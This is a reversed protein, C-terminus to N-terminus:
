VTEPEKVETANKIKPDLFGPIGGGTNPQPPTRPASQSAPADPEQGRSSSGATGKQLNAIADQQKKQRNRAAKEAFSLTAIDEEPNFPKTIDVDVSGSSNKRQIAPTNYDDWNTDEIKPSSTNTSTPNLRADREQIIDVADKLAGDKPIIAESTVTPVTANEKKRSYLSGGTSTTEKTILAKVDEDLSAYFNQRKEETMEMLQKVVKDAESEIRRLDDKKEKSLTDLTRMLTKTEPKKIDPDSKKLEDLKTRLTQVYAEKEQKNKKKYAELNNASETNVVEDDVKEREEKTLFRAGGYQTFYKNKQEVANEDVEGKRKVLEGNKYIDREYTTKIRDGVTRIKKLKEESVQAYGGKLANGQGMGGMGLLGKSFGAKQMGGAVVSSNRLDFSSNALSTTLDYMRRGMFSNQKSNVWERDQLKAAARSGIARRSLLGVGGTAVGLGFGGVKGMANTAYDGVSGSIKKTVTIMIHLMILMMLINFFTAVTGVNGTGRLGENLPGSSFVELFKLTIALMIMFVPGVALQAFFIKRLEQAKDGLVPIVSDILLLPSAITIFILAATRFIIIASVMFFIYASYLVYVVTLLAGPVSDVSGFLNVTSDKKDVASAILGQLGLRNVIIAGANSQSFIDRNNLVQNGLASTYVKLSIINSVDIATRAIPYSFNVFLGFIVVWPIYKEFKDERGLIYLFGLYLGVFVIALSVIQRVIIWIPYLTDPAWKSFELIGVLVAQNFMNATLWLLFGAINVFINKIIWTVGETVCATIRATPFFSCTEDAAKKVIADVQQQANTVAAPDPALNGSDRGKGIELAIIRATELQGYFVIYQANLGAVKNIDNIFSPKDIDLTKKAESVASFQAEAPSLSSNYSSTYVGKSKNVSTIIKEAAVKFAEYRKIGDPTKIEAANKLGTNIADIFTQFIPTVSDQAIKHTFTTSNYNTVVAYVTDPVSFTGFFIGMALMVGVLSGLKKM